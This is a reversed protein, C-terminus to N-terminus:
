MGRIANRIPGNRNSIDDVVIDVVYRRGDFQVGGPGTKMKQGTNNNIVIQVGEDGEGKRKVTEGRQLIAPYEDAELGGHLRPAISLLGRPMPRIAGVGVDGGTHQVTATAGPDGIRQGAKTLAANGFMGGLGTLAKFMVWQAIMDAVAMTMSKVISRGFEAFAERASKTGEILGEFMDAMSYEIRKWAGHMHREADNAFRLMKEGAAAAEQQVDQLGQGMDALSQKVDEASEGTEELWQDAMMSVQVLQTSARSFAGTEATLEAIRNKTQEAVEGLRKLTNGPGEAGPVTKEFYGHREYSAFRREALSEAQKQLEALRKKGEPGTGIKVTPGHLPIFGRQGPRDPSEVLKLEDLAQGRLKQMLDKRALGRKIWVGINAGISIFLDELLVQLSKAFGRFLELTVELGYKVGKKWDERMFDTFERLRAIADRVFQAITERNKKFWDRFSIALETVYPKLDNGIWVAFEKLLSWISRFVNTTSDLTREMDGHVNEMLEMMLGYRAQVKQQMTMEEGLAAIGEKLAYAKTTTENVLYGIRKLPESEGTIGSVLKTFAEEPKLNRYSALNYSLLTLERSMEYAAQETLGMARTIEFLTAINKRVEYANMGLASSVEESWKRAADGMRGMSERFLNESEEADMAMKVSAIGIGTLAVAVYKLTRKAFNLLRTAANKVFRLIAAGARRMWSEVSRGFSRIASGAKKLGDSLKKMDAALRVRIEGLDNDM